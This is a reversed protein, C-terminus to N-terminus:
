LLCVLVIQEILGRHTIMRDDIAPNMLLSLKAGCTRVTCTKQM